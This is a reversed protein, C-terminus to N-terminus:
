RCAGAPNYMVENFVVTSDLVQRVELTEIGLGFPGTGLRGTRSRRPKRSPPQGQRLEAEIRNAPRSGIPKSWRLPNPALPLTTRCKAAQFHDFVLHVLDSDHLWRTANRVMSVFECPSYAIAHGAVAEDGVGINAPFFGAGYGSHGRAIPFTPAVDPDRAAAFGTSTQWARRRWVFAAPM